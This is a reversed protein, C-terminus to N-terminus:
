IHILSLSDKDWTHIFEDLMSPVVCLHSAKSQYLEPVFEKPSYSSSILCETKSVYSRLAMALGPIYFLPLNIFRKSSARFDMQANNCVAHSLLRKVSHVAGKPKGSSGSTLFIVKAKPHIDCNLYDHNEQSPIKKLNISSPLDFSSFHKFDKSSAYFDDASFEQLLEAFEKETIKTPLLFVSSGKEFEKFIIDLSSLSNGPAIFVKRETNSM